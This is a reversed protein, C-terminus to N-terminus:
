NFTLKLGPTKPRTELGVLGNYTAIFIIVLIVVVAAIVIGIIAGTM